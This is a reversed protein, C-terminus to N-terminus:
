VLDQYLDQWHPSNEEIIHLKWIRKWNKITKERQVASEMTEHPEYWVLTHVDYQSSFGEVQNNKHAWGRKILNSTVGTFITGNQKSALLYVCPKKDM